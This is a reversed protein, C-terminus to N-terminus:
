DPVLDIFRRCKGRCWTEWLTVQRSKATEYMLKIPWPYVAVSLPIRRRQVLAYLRDMKQLAKQIGGRVGAPAYGEPWPIADLDSRHTWGARPSHFADHDRVLRFLGVEAFIRELLTYATNALLWRELIRRRFRSYLPEKSAEGDVSLPIVEDLVTVSDESTD